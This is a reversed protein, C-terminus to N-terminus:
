LFHFLCSDNSRDWVKHQYIRTPCLIIRTIKKREKDPFCKRSIFFIRVLSLFFLFSSCTTSINTIFFIWPLSYNGMMWLMLWYTFDPHTKFIFPLEKLIEWRWYVKWLKVKKWEFSWLVSKKQQKEIRRQIKKLCKYFYVSASSYIILKKRWKGYLRLKWTNLSMKLLSKNM